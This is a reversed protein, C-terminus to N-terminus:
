LLLDQISLSLDDLTKGVALPACLHSGATQDMLSSAVDNFLIVRLSYSQVVYMCMLGLCTSQVSYVGTNRVGYTLCYM